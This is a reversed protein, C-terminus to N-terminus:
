VLGEKRRLHNEYSIGAAIMAVGCITFAASKTLLSTDYELFRSLILLVTFLTGAWFAIRREDM